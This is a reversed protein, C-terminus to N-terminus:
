RSSSSAAPASSRGPAPPPASTCRRPACPRGSRSSSPATTSPPPSASATSPWRRSAATTAATCAGIQPITVHSEDAFLLRAEPLYEFFTPPPEGPRRGTLYRSYNEIGACSGTAEMMEIDFHTRQELRQAELFRGNANFWDLREELDQKIHDVAQSLTRRPAVYHSAAYVRVTQLDQTKKGTLPDFEAISEVEDGFM